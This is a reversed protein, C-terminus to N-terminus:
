IILKINRYIEDESEPSVKYILHLKRNVTMYVVIFIFYFLFLFLFAFDICSLLSDYLCLLFFHQRIRGSISEYMFDKFERVEKNVSIRSDILPHPPTLTM